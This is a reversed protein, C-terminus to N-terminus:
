GSLAIVMKTAVTCVNMPFFASLIHNFFNDYFFIEGIMIFYLFIQSKPLGRGRRFSDRSNFMESPLIM